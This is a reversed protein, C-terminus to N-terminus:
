TRAAVTYPRLLSASSVHTRMQPTAAVPPLRIKTEDEPVWGVCVPSGIAM